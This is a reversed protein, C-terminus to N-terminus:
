CIYLLSINVRATANAIATNRLCLIHARSTIHRLFDRWPNVVLANHRRSAEADHSLTYHRSSTDRHRIRIFRVYIARQAYAMLVGRCEATADYHAHHVKVTHLCMFEPVFPIWCTRTIITGRHQKLGKVATLLFASLVSFSLLFGNNWRYVIFDGKRNAYASAMAELHVTESQPYKLICRRWMRVYKTKMM